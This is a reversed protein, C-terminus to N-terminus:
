PLLNALLLVQRNYDPFSKSRRLFEEAPMWRSEPEGPAFYPGDRKQNVPGGEKLMWHSCVYTEGYWGSEDRDTFLKQPDLLWVHTEEYAERVLGPVPLEWQTLKGGPMGFDEPDDRRAVALVNGEGDHVLAAVFEIRPPSAM